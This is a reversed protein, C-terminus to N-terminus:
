EKVIWGQSIYQDLKKFKIEIEAGDKVITVRENRGKKEESSNSSSVVGSQPVNQSRTNQNQAPLPADQSGSILQAQKLVENLKAQEAALVNKEHETGALSILSIIQDRMSIEMTKFLRLGERKYEILPDRQGYARLTVSQRLYDMAELHDVWYADINQLCIRRLDTYFNEKGVRAIIEDIVKQTSKTQSEASDTTDLLNKTDPKEASHSSGEKNLSLFDLIVQELKEGTSVVLERRREYITKRQFNLVDDYELTHKRADFHFGEIKKQATELARNIM